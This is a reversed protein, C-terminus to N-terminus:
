GERHKGERHEEDEGNVVSVLAADEEEMAGSLPVDM